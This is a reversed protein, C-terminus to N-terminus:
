VCRILRTDSDVVTGEVVAIEEIRGAAPACISSEMKMAELVAVVDGAKVVDGVKVSIKLIKGTMPCTIWGPQNDSAHSAAKVPAPAVAGQLPKQSAPAMPAGSPPAKRSPAPAAVSSSAGGDLDEVEVDFDRGNVTVKFRRKMTPVKESGSNTSIARDGTEM